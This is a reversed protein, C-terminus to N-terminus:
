DAGSCTHSHLYNVLQLTHSHLLNIIFTAAKSVKFTNYLNFGHNNNFVIVPM